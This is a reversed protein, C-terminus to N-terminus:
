YKLPRGSPVASIWTDGRNLAIENGTDDTLKIRGKEDKQEWHAKIVTGDKFIFAQGKSLPKLNDSHNGFIKIVVVNKVTIQKKNGADMHPVGALFRKYSNTTKDYRFEALFSPGSFDLTIKTADPNQSPSDESRPIEDFESPKDYKLEKQLDLLGKTSAYMNHPAVRTNVRHYPGPHNFQSLSKIKLQDVLSLALASGGVHAVSADFGSLWNVFAPRLSRVPGVEKPLDIEYLALYRTIGGETVTEFVIGASDLGTQPRAEESNEIMIGLVPLKSDEESVEKGTLKSYYKQEETPQQQKDFLGFAVASGLAIIAVVLISLLIKKRRSLSRFKRVLKM